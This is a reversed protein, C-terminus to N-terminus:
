DEYQRYIVSYIDCRPYGDFSMCHRHKHKTLMVKNDFYLHISVGKCFGECMLKHRDEAHYFPCVVDPVSDVERNRKEEAM